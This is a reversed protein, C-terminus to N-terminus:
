QQEAKTAFSSPTLLSRHVKRTALCAVISLDVISHSLSVIRRTYYFSRQTLDENSEMEDSVVWAALTPLNSFWAFLVLAHSRVRQAPGATETTWYSIACAPSPHGHMTPVAESRAADTEVFRKPWHEITRLYALRM